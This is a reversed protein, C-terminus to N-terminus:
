QEAGEFARELVRAYSLGAVICLAELRDLLVLKEKYTITAPEKKLLQEAEAYAPCAALNPEKTKIIDLMKLGVALKM